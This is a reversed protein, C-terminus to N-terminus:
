RDLVWEEFSVWNEPGMEENLGYPWDEGDAITTVLAKVQKRLLADLDEEAMAMSSIRHHGDILYLGSEFETVNVPANPTKSTAGDAVARMAREMNEPDVRLESLTLTRPKAKAM